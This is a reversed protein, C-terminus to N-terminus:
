PRENKIETTTFDGYIELDPLLGGQNYAQRIRAYFEDATENSHKTKGLYIEDPGAAITFSFRPITYYIKGYTSDPGCNRISTKNSGRIMKDFFEQDSYAAIEAFKAADKAVLSNHYKQNEMELEREEARKVSRKRLIVAAIVISIVILGTTLLPTLIEWEISIM